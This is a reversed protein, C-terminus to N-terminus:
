GKMATNFCVDGVAQGEAGFGRGWIVEGSALVLVGTAGTPARTSTPDAM